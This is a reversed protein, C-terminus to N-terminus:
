ITVDEYLGMLFSLDDEWFVFFLPFHWYNKVGFGLNIPRWSWNKLMQKDNKKFLLSLIGRKQTASLEGIDYAYNLSEILISHIHPWFTKYFEVPIGDSGPSKNGKM